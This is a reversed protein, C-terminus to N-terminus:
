STPTTENHLEAPFLSFLIFRFAKMVVLKQLLLLKQTRNQEPINSDFQFKFNSLINKKSKKLRNTFCYIKRIQRESKVLNNDYLNFIFKVQFLNESTSWTYNNNAM